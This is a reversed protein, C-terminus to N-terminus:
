FMLGLSIKITSITADQPYISIADENYVPRFGKEYSARALLGMPLDIGLGVVVSIDYTNYGDTGSVEETGPLLGGIVGAGENTGKNNILFSAQPGAFVNLGLPGYLKALVPIEIYSTTNSIETSGSIGLVEFQEVITNTNKSTYYIGSEVGFSNMKFEGAVGLQFGMKLNADKIKEGSYNSFNVGAVPGFKLDQAQSVGACLIIALSVSLFISKM